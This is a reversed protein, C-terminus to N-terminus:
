GAQIEIRRPQSKEVKPLFLELVGDKMNAAIRERDGTDSLTFTRLYEGSGFEMSLADTNAQAPHVALGSIRLENENLDIVLDDKKVGPLDMYIHFGDERELIDTAPRVKPYRNENKAVDSM